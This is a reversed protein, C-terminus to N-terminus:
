LGINEALGRLMAGCWAKLSKQGLRAKVLGVATTEGNRYAKVNESGEAFVKTLESRSGLAFVAAAVKGPYPDAFSDALNIM